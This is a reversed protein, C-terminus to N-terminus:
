GKRLKTSTFNEVTYDAPVAGKSKLVDIAIEPTVAGGTLKVFNAITRAIATWRQAADLPKHKNVLAAYAAQKADARLKMNAQDKLKLLANGTAKSDETEKGDEGTEKFYEELFQINDETLKAGLHILYNYWSSVKKFRFPEPNSKDRKYKSVKEMKGTTPNKEQVKVDITFYGEMWNGVVKEDVIYEEKEVETDVDGASDEDEEDEEFEEGEEIETDDSVVPVLTPTTSKQNEVIRNRRNRKRAIELEVNVTNAMKM